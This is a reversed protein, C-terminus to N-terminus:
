QQKRKENEEEEVYPRYEYRDFAEEKSYPDEEKSSRYKSPSPRDNPYRIHQPRETDEPYVTDNEIYEDRSGSLKNDSPQLINDAM